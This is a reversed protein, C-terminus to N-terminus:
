RRRNDWNDFANPIGDHDKDGFAGRDSRREYRDPIGDGDRDWRNPHYRWQERGSIYV